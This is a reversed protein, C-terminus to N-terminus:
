EVSLSFLILVSNGNPVTYRDLAPALLAVLAPKHRLLEARLEPTLAGTPADAVLRDGQVDLVIDRARTFSLQEAPTM